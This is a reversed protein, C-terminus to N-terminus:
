ETPLRPVEAPATDLGRPAPVLGLQARDESSLLAVRRPLKKHVRVTLELARDEVGPRYARLKAGEELDMGELDERAIWVEGRPVQLDFARELVAFDMRVRDLIIEPPTYNGRSKSEKRGERDGVHGLVICTRFPLPYGRVYSLGLRKQTEEDFVLSAVMLLSYFWGRTQDIAESIFDAPFAADFREK